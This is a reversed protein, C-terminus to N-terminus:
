VHRLQKFFYIENPSHEEKWVRPTESYVTVRVREAHYARSLIDETLDRMTLIHKDGDRTLVYVKKRVTDVKALGTYVYVTEYTSGQQVQYEAPM